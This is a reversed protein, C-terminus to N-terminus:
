LIGINISLTHGRIDFIDKGTLYFNYGYTITLKSFVTLGVEPRFAIQDHIFDTYNVINIRGAFILYYYEYGLKNTLLYKHDKFGLGCDAFPGNVRWIVFDTIVRPLGMGISANNIGNSEYQLKPYLADFFRNVKKMEQASDFCRSVKRTEQASVIQSFWFCGLWAFLM